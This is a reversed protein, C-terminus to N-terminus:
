ISEIACDLRGHSSASDCWDRVGSGESYEGPSFDFGLGQPTSGFGSCGGSGNSHLRPTHTKHVKKQSMMQKSFSANLETACSYEIPIM